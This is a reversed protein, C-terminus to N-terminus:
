QHSKQPRRGCDTAVIVLVVVRPAAGALATAGGTAGTLASVAAAAAACRGNTAGRLGTLGRETAAVGTASSTARGDRTLTAVVLAATRVHGNRMWHVIADQKM